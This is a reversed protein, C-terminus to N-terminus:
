GNVLVFKVCDTLWLETDPAGDMPDEWAALMRFAVRREPPWVPAECSWAVPIDICGM